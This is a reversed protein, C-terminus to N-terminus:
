IFFDNIGELVIKEESGDKLKVMKEFRLKPMNEFFKQIKLLGSMDINDYFEQVEQKSYEATNFFNDGEYIQEICSIIMEEESVMSKADYLTPYRMIIGMKDTLKIVNSTDEPKQVKVEDLNVSVDVTEGDETGYKINIVEGVSKARIRLFIDELDFVPLTKVDVKGYTCMSIITEVAQIIQEESGSEKATLLIKQEKTTFPRFTITKNLGTLKHQYSIHQIKPLSM